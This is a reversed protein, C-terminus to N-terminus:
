KKAKLMDIVMEIEEETFKGTESQEILDLLDDKKVEIPSFVVLRDGFVDIASAPGLDTEIVLNEGRIKMRLDEYRLKKM